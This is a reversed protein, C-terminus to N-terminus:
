FPTEEESGYLRKQFLAVRDEKKLLNLRKAEETAEKFKDYFEKDHTVILNIPGKRYSYFFPVDQYFDTDYNTSFGEQELLDEVGEKMLFLYDEDTTLVPPNCIYRSGTPWYEKCLSVTSLPPRM